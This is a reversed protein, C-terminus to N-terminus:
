DRMGPNAQAVGLNLSESPTSTSGSRTPPHSVGSATLLELKELILKWGSELTSLRSAVSSAATLDDSTSSLTPQSTSSVQTVPGAVTLMPPPGATQFSPLSLNDMDVTTATLATAAPPLVCWEFDLRVLDAKLDLGEQSVPQQTVDDWVMSNAELVAEPTFWHLVANGHAHHLYKAMYEVFEQAHSSYKEPFTVIYGTGNWNSDVSLFLNKGDRAKVAMLTSRLTANQLSALPRDLARIKLSFHKALASQATQHQSRAFHINDADHGLTKATLIPVLLLPLNTFAKVASSKLARKLLSRLSLAQSTEVDVHIAWLGQRGSKSSDKTRDSKKTGDWIPKFSLALKPMPIPSFAIRTISEQLLQDLPPLLLCIVMPALSNYLIITDM